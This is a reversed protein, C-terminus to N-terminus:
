KANHAAEPKVRLVVLTSDDQRGGLGSWQRLEWLVREIIDNSTATNDKAADAVIHHLRARGFAVGEFNRAEDIGDTFAVITDHPELQVVTSGFPTTPDIGVVLGGRGLEIIDGSRVIFTPQHGASCYRLRLTPPDVTGFWITAFESEGTDRCLDRNVREMVEEVTSVSSAHARLAARVSSMLMAAAFGKGVVDGVALGLKPTGGSYTEFVDYFDGGVSFSPQYQAAVDIGPLEPLAHPLLRNQVQAAMQMQRELERETDRRALLRAQQVAAAAQHAIAEVVRRQADSVRSARRSYLRMLGVPRGRVILGVGIFAVVGEAIVQDRLAVRDDERLDPVEVIVGALALRDFVRESSLALPSKLWDESLGEATMIELDKEDESAIGDADERLLMVSGAEFGLTDLAARLATNVIGISDTSEVLMAALEFLVGLDDLSRRLQLSSRCLEAAVDAIMAVAGRLSEINSAADGTGIVLTGITQRAVVIPEELERQAPALGDEIESVTWGGSEAQTVLRGTEDRLEIPRGSLAALHECVAALSGDTLFEALSLQPVAAHHMLSPASQDDDSAM